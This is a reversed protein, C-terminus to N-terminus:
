SDADKAEKEPAPFLVALIESEFGQDASEALADFDEEAMAALRETVWERAIREAEGLALTADGSKAGHCAWCTYTGPDDMPRQFPYGITVGEGRCASCVVKVTDSM